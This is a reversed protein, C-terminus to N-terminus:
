DLPLILRGREFPLPARGYEFTAMEFRHPTRYPSRIAKMPESRTPSVLYNQLKSRWGLGWQSHGEQILLPSMKLTPLPKASTFHCRHKIWDPSIDLKRQRIRRSPSSYSALATAARETTATPSRPCGCCKIRSKGRKPSILDPFKGVTKTPSSRARNRATRERERQKKSQYEKVFTVGNMSRSRKLEVISRKPWLLDYKAPIENGAAGGLLNTGYHRQKYLNM